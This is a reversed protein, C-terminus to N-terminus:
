LPTTDNGTKQIRVTLYLSWVLLTYHPLLVLLSISRDAVPTVLIMVSPTGPGPSQNQAHHSM